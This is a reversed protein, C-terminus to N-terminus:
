RGQKPLLPASTRIRENRGNIAFARPLRWPGKDNGSRDEEPGRLFNRPEDLREKHVVRFVADGGVRLNVVAMAKGRRGRVGRGADHASRVEVTVQRAFVTVLPSTLFTICKLAYVDKRRCILVNCVSCHCLFARTGFENWNIGSFQWNKLIKWKM